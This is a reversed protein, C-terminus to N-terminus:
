SKRSRPRRKRVNAAVTQKGLRVTLVPCPATRAVKEAVSGMLTHLLGTRGHTSMVILDVKSKRATETIVMYPMGVRLVTVIKVRRKRLDVAVRELERHGMRLLEDLLAGADDVPGYALPASSLPEVAHLVTFGARFARGLEIAYDLARLSGQSFDVPVLIRRIM